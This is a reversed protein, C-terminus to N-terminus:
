EEGTLGGAGITRSREYDIIGKEFLLACYKMFGQELRKVAQGLPLAMLENEPAPYRGLDVGKEPTMLKAATMYYFAKFAMVARTYSQANAHKGACHAIAQATDEWHQYVLSLAMLDDAEKKKDFTFSM